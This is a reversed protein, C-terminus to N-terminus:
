IIDRWIVKSRKVRIQEWASKTSYLGFTSPTWSILDRRHIDPPAIHQTAEKLTILDPSNAIPWHWDSNRIIEKVKANRPIASDYIVRDSMAELIPGM